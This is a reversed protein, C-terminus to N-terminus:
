GVNQDSLLEKVALVEAPSELQEETDCSEAGTVTQSTQGPTEEDPRRGHDPGSIEHIAGQEVRKMVVGARIRRLGVSPADAPVLEEQNDARCAEDPIPERTPDEASKRIESPDAPKRWVVHKDVLDKSSVGAVTQHRDRKVPGDDTPVNARRQDRREVGDDVDHNADEDEEDACGHADVEAACPEGIEQGHLRGLRVVVGSM